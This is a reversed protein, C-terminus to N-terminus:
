APEKSWPDPALAIAIYTKVQEPVYGDLLCQLEVESFVLAYCTLGYTHLQEIKAGSVRDDRARDFRSAEAKPM